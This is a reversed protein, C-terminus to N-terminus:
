TTCGQVSQLENYNTVKKTYTRLLYNIIINNNELTLVSLIHIYLLIYICYSVMRLILYNGTNCFFLNGSMNM